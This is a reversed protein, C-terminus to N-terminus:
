EDPAWLQTITITGQPVIYKVGKVIVNAGEFRLTVTRNGGGHQRNPLFSLSINMACLNDGIDGLNIIEHDFWDMASSAWITHCTYNKYKVYITCEGGEAPIEIYDEDWFVAREYIESDPPAYTFEIRKTKTYGGEDNLLVIIYGNTFERICRVDFWGETASNRHMEIDFNGDSLVMVTTKEPSSGSVRYPFSLFGDLGIILDDDDEENILPHSDDNFFVHIENSVYRPVRIISGDSLTLVVYEEGSSNIATIFANADSQDSSGMQVFPEGNGESIWWTNNELKIIQSSASEQTGTSYVVVPGSKAFTFVWGAQNGEMMVPNISMLYDNQGIADVISKLSTLNTNLQNVMNRLSVHASWTTLQLVTGDALTIVVYNPNSTDISKFASAANTAEKSIHWSKGNDTSILWNGDEIKFLPSAEGEEVAIMEGTDDLLWEDDLTWYYDGGNYSKVSIKPTAKEGTSLYITEGSGFVLTYGVTTGNQEDPIVATVYGGTQMQSVATQLATIDGNASDVLGALRQLEAEHQKLQEQIEQLEKNNCAVACVMCALILLIRLLKHM